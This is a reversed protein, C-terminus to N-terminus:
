AHQCVSQSATTSITTIPATTTPHNCGRLALVIALKDPLRYRRLMEVRRRWGVGFRLLRPQHSSRTSPFSPTCSVTAVLSFSSLHISLFGCGQM